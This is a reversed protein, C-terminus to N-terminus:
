LVNKSLCVAYCKKSRYLLLTAWGRALASVQFKKAQLILVQGLKFKFQWYWYSLLCYHDCKYVTIHVTTWSNITENISLRQALMIQNEEWILLTELVRLECIPMLLHGYQVCLAWLNLAGRVFLLECVSM